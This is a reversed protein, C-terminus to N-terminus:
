PHYISATCTTPEGFASIVATHFCPLTETPPEALLALAAGDLGTTAAHPRESQPLLSHGQPTRFMNEPLPRRQPDMAEPPAIATSRDIPRRPSLRPPHSSATAIAIVSVCRRHRCAVKWTLAPDCFLLILADYNDQFTCNPLRCSSLKPFTPINPFKDFQLQISSILFRKPQTKQVNTDNAEWIIIRIMIRIEKVAEAFLAIFGM